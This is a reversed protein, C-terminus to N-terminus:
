QVALSRRAANMRSITSAKTSSPNPEVAAASARNWRPHVPVTVVYGYGAGTGTLSTPPPIAHVVLESGELVVTELIDVIIVVVVAVEKTVFDSM